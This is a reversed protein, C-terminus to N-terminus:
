RQARGYLPRRRCSQVLEVADLVPLAAPSAAQTKTCAAAVLTGAALALVVVSSRRDM